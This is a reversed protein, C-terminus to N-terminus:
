LHPCVLLRCVDQFRLVYQERPIFSLINKTTPHCNESHEKERRKSWKLCLSPSDTYESCYFMGALRDPFHGRQRNWTQGLTTMWIEELPTSITGKPYKRKKRKCLSVFKFTSVLWHISGASQSSRQASVERPLPHNFMQHGSVEVARVPVLPVGRLSLLLNSLEATSDLLKWSALPM